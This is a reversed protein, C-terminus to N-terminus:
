NKYLSYLIGALDGVMLVAEVAWVWPPMFPFILIFIILSAVLHMTLNGKSALYLVIQFMIFLLGYFSNQAGFLLSVPQNYSEVASRVISGNLLLDIPDTM